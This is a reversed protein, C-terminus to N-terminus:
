LYKLIDAFITKLFGLHTDWGSKLNDLVIIFAIFITAHIEVEKLDYSVLQTMEKMCDVKNRLM